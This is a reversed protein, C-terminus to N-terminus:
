SVQPRYDDPARSSTAGHLVLHVPEDGGPGALPGVEVDSRELDEAPHGPQRPVEVPGATGGEGSVVELDPLEVHEGRQAPGPRGYTSEGPWSSAWVM